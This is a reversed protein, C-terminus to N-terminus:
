HPIVLSDLRNVRVFGLLGEIDFSPQKQKNFAIDAVINIFLFVYSALGVVRTIMM